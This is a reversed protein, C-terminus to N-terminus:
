DRLLENETHERSGLSHPLRHTKESRLGAGECAQGRPEQSAHTCTHAATPARAQPPTPGGSVGRQGSPEPCLRAGHTQTRPVWCQLLASRACEAAGDTDPPRLSWMSWRTPLREARPPLVEQERGQTRKVLVSGAPAHLPCPRGAHKSRRQPCSPQCSPPRSSAAAGGAGWCGRTHGRRLPPPRSGKRRSGKSGGRLGCGPFPRVHAHLAHPPDAPHADAHAGTQEPCRCVLRVGRM